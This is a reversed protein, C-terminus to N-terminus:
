DDRPRIEKRNVSTRRGFGCPSLLCGFPIFPHPPLPPHLRLSPFGMSPFSPPLLFLFVCVLSPFPLSPPPFLFVSSLPSPLSGWPLFSPPFPLVPFVPSRLFPLSLPLSLSVSFPSPSPVGHFPLPLSPLVPFRLRRLFPLSPSSFLFVSSLSSPPFGMSPFSPSPSPVPFVLCAFSLSSPFPSSSFLFRLFPPPLSSVGPLPFLPPPLPPVPFVCVLSPFPLFPLSFLFVLFSPFPPFGMSPFLPFPLVPFCVSSRLFLSPFPPPVPFRLFSPSPSPGWPLFSPPFPSCSVCVLSPFPLLFPPPSCSFRPFPFLLSGMSPFLPFPSCSFRRSPLSSALFPLAVPFPLFRPPSSGWSPSSPHPLPVPFVCVLSPFLFPPSCALFRLSLPSSFLFRLFLLPPLPFPSPFWTMMALLRTCRDLDVGNLAEVWIIFAPRPALCISGRECNIRPLQPAQSGVERNLRNESVGASSPLPSPPRSATPPPLLPPLSLLLPLHRSPRLPLASPLPPTRLAPSPSSPSLTPPSPPHPLLLLCSVLARSPPPLPPPPSPHSPSSSLVNPPHRLLRRFPSSSLSVFPSTVLPPLSLCSSRRVVWPLCGPPSPPAFLSVPPFPNPSLFPQLPHASLFSASSVPSPISPHTPPSPPPPLFSPSSFVPPSPTPPSPLHLPHPRPVSSSVPLPFFIHCSCTFPPALFHPMQPFYHRRYPGPLHALFHRISFVFSLLLPFYPSLFFIPTRLCPKSFALLYLSSSSSFHMLTCLIAYSHLPPLPLPNSPLQFPFRLLHFPSFPFSSSSLRTLPPSTPSPLSQPFFHSFPLPSPFPPPLNPPFPPSSLPCFPLRLPFPSPLPFPPPLTPPSPFPSPLPFPSFPPLPLPLHVPLVRSPNAGNTARESGPNLCSM